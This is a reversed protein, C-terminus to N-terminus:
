RSGRLEALASGDPNLPGGDAAAAVGTAAALTLAAATGECIGTGDANDDAKEAILAYAALEYAAVGRGVAIYPFIHEIAEILVIASLFVFTFRNLLVYKYVEIEM